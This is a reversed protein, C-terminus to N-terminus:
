HHLSHDVAFLGGGDDTLVENAATKWMEHVSSVHLEFVAALSTSSAQMSVRIEAGHYHLLRGKKVKSARTTKRM